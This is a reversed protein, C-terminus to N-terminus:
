TDYNKEREKIKDLEEFAWRKSRRGMRGFSMNLIEKKSYKPPRTKKNEWLYTQCVWCDKEDCREFHDNGVKAIVKEAVEGLDEDHCSNCMSHTEQPAVGCKICVEKRKM